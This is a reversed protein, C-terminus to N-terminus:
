PLTTVDEDAETVTAVPVLGPEPVRDPVSVSLADPPTAVNEFRDILLVPM